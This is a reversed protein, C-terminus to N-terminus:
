TKPEVTVGGITISSAGLSPDDVVTWGEIATSVPRVNDPGPLTNGDVTVSVRDARPVQNGSGDDVLPSSAVSKVIVEWVGVGLPNGATDNKSVSASLVTDDTVAVTPTGDIKDTPQPPTQGDMVTFQFRGQQLTTLQQSM